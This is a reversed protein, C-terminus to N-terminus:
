AADPSTTNLIDQVRKPDFDPSYPDAIAYLTLQLMLQNLEHDNLEAARSAVRRMLDDMILLPQRLVQCTPNELVEKFIRATHVRWEPNLPERTSAPTASPM